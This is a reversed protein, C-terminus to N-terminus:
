GKNFGGVLESQTTTHLTPGEPSETLATIYGSSRYEDADAQCETHARTHSVTNSQTTLSVSLDQWLM